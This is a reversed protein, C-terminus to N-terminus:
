IFTGSRVRTVNCEAIMSCRVIYIRPDAHLNTKLQVLNAEGILTCIAIDGQSPRVTLLDTRKRRM